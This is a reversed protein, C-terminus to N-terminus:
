FLTDLKTRPLRKWGNSYFRPWDEAGQEALKLLAAQLHRQMAKVTELDAVGQPLANYCHVLGFASRKFVTSSLFTAHTGLQRSHLPRWYRMRQRHQPETICGIRPFMAQLQPPALDLTVKHLAGLMGMDRRSSLPALRYDKLANLATLGIERLFRDQVRDVRALISPAAHYIAPTSSEIFSLIQAKYLRMIEPTTFFRKGRLLTKLRWGAETAIHKAAELMRLQPDFVCGLVKFNDGYFLRRHLIHFSEKGADFFVQNAEGWLHLELQAGRLEELAADHPAPSLRALLFAKWCNLDDAFVTEKFHKRNLARRADGFFTNWLPPGLVTGQFVSDTLPEMASSAGGLVVQSIRDELSSALFGVADPHLGTAELKDCLRIRSVRDFAGSVDSCFVGVALGQEMLLLWSCVNVMLVDRYGRRKTYAYQHPGYAETCELWPLLLSGIAREIVKSLQSTLHVGRYNKGLAKPGRKHIGHIWHIRWCRPWCRDRLLKRALLTVPLALESACNKLVRAPLLDPGTGSTEDLTRLLEHVKSVKLRPLRRMSAPARTTLESYDNTKREPLKSKEKFVRALETAREESTKAWTEDERQLPPISERTGARQLLSGSLRWWGRSSPPLEKLKDRTKAVFEYFAELYVASCEDRRQQFSPTGFAERKRLLADKCAQNVWPHAWVKDTIIRSPIGRSMIDFIVQVMADAAEHGDMALIDKWDIDLLLRKLQAWDAKKFDYVKRIVPESAPICLDVKTLVGDHDNEHIGPVVTCRIGSALDSLVLDLLYSGRTPKRVLQRLGHECCIAEMTRGEPSNRNSYTLWEINHVNLDGMIICNVAQCSYKSLEEDFRKVSDVEGPNPRRYWLCLLVPGSDAHIIFWSREDTASDALHVISDQFGDRAYLAIGGRDGRFSNRRDLQAVLHYGSIQERTRENWTETIGVIHPFGISEVLSTVQALNRGLGQPNIHFLELQTHVSWMQSNTNQDRRVNGATPAFAAVAVPVAAAAAAAAAAVAAPPAAVCAFEVRGDESGCVNANVSVPSVVTNVEFPISPMLSVLRHAVQVHWTQFRRCRAERSRRGRHTAKVSPPRAAPAAVEFSTAGALADSPM